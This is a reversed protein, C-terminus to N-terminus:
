RRRSAKAWAEHFDVKPGRCVAVAFRREWPNVHELEIEAAITVEEFMAAWVEREGNRMDAVIVTGAPEERPRWLRYTLHDCISKPLGYAGGFYDIAGAIGYWRAYIATRRREEPPLGEYVRAVVEVRERWGFQGRLDGTLEYVNGLAGFTIATVYRDTAEISLIPLSLPVLIAGVMLYAGIAVPRLWTWSVRRALQELLLGGGALLAPYAPALYYIKSKTIVLLAFVVVYIWGLVRYPRGTRTFFFYALGAIWIPTNVPNLYLVQGLLFQILSIGAMTNKNLQRLFEITPWGNAMQWLVNPLFIIAAVVGGLYLWPSKFQRRLPTLLLAVVLGFGFFLMSHKTMLGIGAVLGVWIWLRPNNDQVIRVLLYSCLIWLLPEFAPICLMNNSRLYAPAVIMALCAILQAFRGGGLRRVLVGTVFVAAVGALTAFIRLGYLSQGFLMDALRAIWPVMPAHDVYGFASHRGCALFYLEDHHYGYRGLVPLHILLKLVALGALFLWDSRKPVQSPHASIM